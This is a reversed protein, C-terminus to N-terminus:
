NPFEDTICREKGFMLLGAVTLGEEQHERSRGWAGIDFLFDEISSELFPHSPNRSSLRQRYSNITELSLDKLSYNKLVKKDQTEATQDALM